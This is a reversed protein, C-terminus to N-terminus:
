IVELARHDAFLSSSILANVTVLSNECWFLNFPVNRHLPPGSRTKQAAM